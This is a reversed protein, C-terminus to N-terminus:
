SKVCIGTIGLVRRGYIFGVDGVWFGSGLVM